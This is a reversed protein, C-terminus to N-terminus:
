RRGPMDELRIRSIDPPTPTPPLAEMQEMIWSIEDINKDSKQFLRLQEYITEATGREEFFTYLEKWFSALENCVNEQQHELGEQYEPIDPTFGTIAPHDNNLMAKVNEWQDEFHEMVWSDKHPSLQKFIIDAYPNYPADLMQGAFDCWFDKLEDQQIEHLHEEASEQGAEYGRQYAERHEGTLDDNKLEM